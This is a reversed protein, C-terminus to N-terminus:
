QPEGDRGDEEGEGGHRVDDDFIMTLAIGCERALFLGVQFGILLCCDSIDHVSFHFDIWLRYQISFILDYSLSLIEGNRFRLAM